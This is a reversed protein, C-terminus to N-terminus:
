SRLDEKDAAQTITEDSDLVALWAQKDSETDASFEVIAGGRLRVDFRRKRGNFALTKDDYAIWKEVLMEAAGGTKSADGFEYIKDHESDYQFYGALWKGERNVALIGEVTRLDVADGEAITTDTRFINTWAAKDGSSPANFRLTSTIKLLQVDFRNKRKLLGGSNPCDDFERIVWQQAVHRKTQDDYQYLTDNDANYGFYSTTWTGAACMELQGEQHPRLSALEDRLRQLEAAQPDRALNEERAEEESAVPAPPPSSTASGPQPQSAVGVGDAQVLADEKAELEKQTLVTWCAHGEPTVLRNLGSFTRDVDKRELFDQFDRLAGGRVEKV